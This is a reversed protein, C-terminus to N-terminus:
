VLTDGNHLEGSLVKRYCHLDPAVLGGTKGTEVFSGAPHMSRLWGAPASLRQLFLSHDFGAREPLTGDHVHTTPFFLKDPMRTPFHLAMPHIKRTNPRLKFVAFGYEAYQPLGQWIRPPLRFRPDLRDFDQISPVYSAEFSGVLQVALTGPAGLSLSLADDPFGLELDSFFDSYKSLDVFEADSTGNVPLPLVMALSQEMHLNMEYILGQRGNPLMAAFIKTNRVSNVTGTFICM